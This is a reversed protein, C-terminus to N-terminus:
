ICDGSELIELMGDGGLVGVVLRKRESVVLVFSVTLVTGLVGM